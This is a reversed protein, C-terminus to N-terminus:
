KTHHSELTTIDDKLLQFARDITKWRLDNVKEHAAISDANRSIRNDMSIGYGIVSAVIVIGALINAIAGSSLKM